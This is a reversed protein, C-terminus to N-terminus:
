AVPVTFEAVHVTGDLTFQLYMRYTGPPPSSPTFVVDPGSGASTRPHVHLYAMDGKRLAVLHGLAGLYSQLATVPRGGRTIHFTLDDSQGSRPVGAMTVEFGDVGV